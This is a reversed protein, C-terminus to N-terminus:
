FAIQVLSALGVIVGLYEALAWYVNFPVGSLGHVAYKEVGPRLAIPPYPRLWFFLVVSSTASVAQPVNYGLITLIL